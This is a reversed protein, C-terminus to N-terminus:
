TGGGPISPWGTSVFRGEAEMVKQADALVRKGDEAMRELRQQTWEQCATLADPISRAAMVKAVFDSALNAESQVRDAWRRSMDEFVKTLEAQANVYEEVRKTGLAAFEGLPAIPPSSKEQQRSRAEAQAM